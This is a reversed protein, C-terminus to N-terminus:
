RELQDKVPHWWLWILGGLAFLAIMILWVYTAVTLATSFYSNNIADIDYTVDIVRTTDEALGAIVLARTTGNYSSVIPVDDADHSALEISSTDDDYLEKFLQVTANNSSATVITHNDERLDTLLSHIAGTFPLLALLV